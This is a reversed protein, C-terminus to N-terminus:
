RLVETLLAMIESEEETLVPVAVYSRAIDSLCSGIILSQTKPSLQNFWEGIGEPLLGNNGLAQDALEVGVASLRRAENESRYGRKISTSAGAIFEELKQTYESM